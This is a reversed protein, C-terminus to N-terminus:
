FTAAEAAREGARQTTAEHFLFGRDAEATQNNVELPAAQFGIVDCDIIYAVCRRSMSVAVTAARLGAVIV